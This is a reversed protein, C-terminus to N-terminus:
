GDRPHRRQQTGARHGRDLQGLLGEGADFCGVALRVGELQHHRLPRQGRGPSRFVFQSAAHPPPRQVPNRHGDLIKQGHLVRRGGGPRLDEGRPDGVLVRSRHLAKARRARDDHALGAQRLESVPRPRGVGVVAGGGVGVVGGAVRASGAAPRRRGHGAAHHVCGQARVGPARDADRRRQASHDAQFRREPAHAQVATHRQRPRQVVQARERAADLVGREHEGHDGSVIGAVRTGARALGEGRRAPQVSAHSPQADAHRALEVDLGRQVFRDRTRPCAGVSAQLFRAGGQHLDVEIVDVHQPLNGDQRQADFGGAVM